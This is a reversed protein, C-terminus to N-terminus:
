AHFYQQVLPYWRYVGPRSIHIKQKIAAVTDRFGRKNKAQRLARSLGLFFRQPIYEIHGLDNYSMDFWFTLLTLVTNANGSLLITSFHQWYCSWFLEAQQKNYLRSIQRHQAVIAKGEFLGAVKLTYISIAPDQVEDNRLQVYKQLKQLVNKTSFADNTKSLFVLTKIVSYWPYKQAEADFEKFDKRYEHIHPFTDHEPLTLFFQQLSYPQHFDHPRSLFWFSLLRIGKNMFLLSRLRNILIGQYVQWFDPQNHDPLLALLLYKHTEFSIHHQTVIFMCHEVIERYVALDQQAIIKGIPVQLQTALSREMQGQTIAIIGALIVKTESSLALHQQYKTYLDIKDFSFDILSVSALLSIVFRNQIAEPLFPTITDDRLVLVAIEERELPTVCRKELEEIGTKLLTDLTYSHQRAHNIWTQFVALRESASAKHIDQQIEYNLIQDEVPLMITRYPVRRELPFPAIFQYYFSTLIGPPLDPQCQVALRLWALAGDQMTETLARLITKRDNQSFRAAASLYASLIHRCTTDPRLYGGIHQWLLLYSHPEKQNLGSALWRLYAPNNIGAIIQEREYYSENSAHQLALLISTRALNEQALLQRTSDQLEYLIQQEMPARHSKLLALVREYVTYLQENDTTQITTRLIDKIRSLEDINRETLDELQEFTPITACLAALEKQSFTHQEHDQQQIQTYYVIQDLQEDITSPHPFRQVSDIFFPQLQSEYLDPYASASALDAYPSAPVSSTIGEEVNLVFFAQYDDSSARFSSDLTTGTIVYQAQYPDHHYTAFTLLPRYYPPLLLSVAAIWLAIHEPSDIIVIRRQTTGSQVVACLLKHLLPRREQQDLFQWIADPELSLAEDLSSVPSLSTLEAHEEPDSTRWFPSKWFFIAPMTTFLDQDTIVTHAFFNGPRGNEDNGNSQSCLLICEMPGAYYYRLAIPHTAPAHVDLTAPIRYAILRAITAQLGPPIDPSMAKIQFGTAGTQQNTYSTYYHQQIIM